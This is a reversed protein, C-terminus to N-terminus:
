AGCGRRMFAVAPELPRASVIPLAIQERLDPCIRIVTQFPTSSRHKKFARRCGIGGRLVLQALASCFRKSKEASRPTSTTEKASPSLLVEKMTGDPL